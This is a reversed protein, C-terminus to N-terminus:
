LILLMEKVADGFAACDTESTSFWSACGGGCMAAVSVSWGGTAKSAYETDM